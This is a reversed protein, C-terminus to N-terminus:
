LKDMIFVEMPAALLEKQQDGWTNLHDTKLHQELLATMAKKTAEIKDKKAISKAIVYIM